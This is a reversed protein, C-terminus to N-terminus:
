NTYATHVQSGISYKKEKKEREKEQECVYKNMKEGSFLCAKKKSEERRKERSEKWSLSV